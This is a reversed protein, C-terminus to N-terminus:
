KEVVDLFDDLDRIGTRKFDMRLSPKTPASSGSLSVSCTCGMQKISIFNYIFNFLFM